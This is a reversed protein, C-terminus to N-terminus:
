AGRIRSVAKAAADNRDAAGADDTLLKLGSAALQAAAKAVSPPLLAARQEREALPKFVDRFQARLTGMDDPRADCLSRWGVCRAAAAASAPLSALGEGPRDWGFRRAAGCALDFAEGWTLPPPRLLALAAVRLRGVPPIWGDGELVAQKAAALVAGGPLDALLDFYVECQERPMPKNCAAGLYAVVAAFEVRTM